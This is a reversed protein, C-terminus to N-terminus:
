EHIELTFVKVAREGVPVHTMYPKTELDVIAGELAPLADWPELCVYPTDPEHHAQWFGIFRYDEFHMTVYKPDKTSKISVCHSTDELIIADHNFLHHELPIKVGDVMEYPIVVNAMFADEDNLLQRKVDTKKNFELYYDEFEGKGFPINIGPHGGFTCILTRNDTNKVEYRTVLETGNLLFFVRFEFNFPYEKHTEENDTFLFVLTNDTQSELSFEFYRALGHPRSSYEKGDYHFKGEVMRGIFPFLNTARGSWYKPDGQWLYETNTVKSYLSFLEAGHSNVEVKLSENEISYIM